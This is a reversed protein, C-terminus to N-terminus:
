TMTELLLAQLLYRRSDALHAPGGLEWALLATPHAPSALADYVAIDAADALRRVLASGLGQCEVADYLRSLLRAAHGVEASSSNDNLGVAVQAVHAGLELAARRILRVEPQQADHCLLALNKGRLLPQLTGSVHARRLNRASGLLAATETPTLRSCAPANRPRLTPTM